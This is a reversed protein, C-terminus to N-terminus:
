CVPIIDLLMISLHEGNIELNMEGLKDVANFVRDLHQRVDEGEKMKSLTLQKLLAAKRAPGKSNYTSELKLWM